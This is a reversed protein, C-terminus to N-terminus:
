IVPASFLAGYMAAHGVYYRTLCGTLAVAYYSPGLAGDRRRVASSADDAAIGLLVVIIGSHGMANVKGFELVDSFCIEALISGAPSRVLATCILCFALTFEVVGGVKS